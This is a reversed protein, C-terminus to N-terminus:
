RRPRDRMSTNSCTTRLQGIAFVYVLDFFLEMPRVRQGRETHERFLRGPEHSHEQGHTV